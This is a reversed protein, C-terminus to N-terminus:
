LKSYYNSLNGYTTEISYKEAAFKKCEDSMQKQLKENSLLQILYEAMKQNDDSIYGHKGHEIELNDLAHSTGVVPVGMAMVEVTRSRFGGAVNLPITMVKAIGIYSRVDEVFGTVILRDSALSIISEPPNAGVVIVKVNAIQQEVLPLIQNYFRFFADINEQGGMSGYFLIVNKEPDVHFNSFHDINQGTAVIINSTHPCLKNLDNYDKKTISILLDAKRLCDTELKRYKNLIKNDLLSLRNASKLQFWQRRKEYLIDHTDIVKLLDHKLKDFIAGLVWYEIQIIDYKNNDTIQGLQRIYSPHGTYFYDSTIFNLYKQYLFQLGVMKRKVWNDSPNIPKLPFFNKCFGSLHKKTEELQRNSRILTVLDIDHDESLRKIMNIVRDQNAMVKPYLTGPFVILIRKRSM